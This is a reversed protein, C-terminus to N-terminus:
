YGNILNYNEGGPSNYDCLDSGDWNLKWNRNDCANPSGNELLAMLDYEGNANVLYAYEHYGWTPLPWFHGAELVDPPGLPDKPLDGM